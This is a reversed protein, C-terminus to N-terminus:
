LLRDYIGGILDRRRTKPPAVWDLIKRIPQSIKLSKEFARCTEHLESSIVQLQQGTELLRKQTADAEATKARLETNTSALQKEISELQKRTSALQAETADLRKEASDLKKETAELKNEITNKLLDLERNKSELREREATADSLAARHRELEALAGSLSVHYRGLEATADSLAARQRDLEATAGLLAAQHRDREALASSLSVHYRGLEATADSLAARHRDLEATAGLLAAKHQDREATVGSLAARHRDLDALAGSLSVHYRGLEEQVEDRNIRFKEREGWLVKEHEKYSSRGLDLVVMGRKIRKLDFASNSCVAILYMFRDPDSINKTLREAGTGPEEIYSGLLEVPEAESVLPSIVSCDATRQGFILVNKFAPSLFDIFEQSYFEKFHYPNKYNQQDSYTRKNPSSIFLLGEDRLVRRFEQLTRLQLDEDVHEIGEFCTIVDVSQGKAFDLRSMDGHHFQLNERRYKESAHRVSDESIDVGTVQSALEALVNSGFGEGSPVDLVKKGRVSELALLYRGYHEYAIDAGVGPLFREGTWELALINM